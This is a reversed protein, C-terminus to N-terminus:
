IADCNCVIGIWPPRLDSGAQRAFSALSALFVSELRMIGRNGFQWCAKVPVERASPTGKYSLRQSCSAAVFLASQWDAAAQWAAGCPLLAAVLAGAVAPPSLYLRPHARTSVNSRRGTEWGREDFRVHRNGADPKGVTKMASERVPLV